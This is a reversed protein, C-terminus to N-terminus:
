MGEKSLYSPCDPWISPVVCVVNKEKRLCTRIREPTKKSSRRDNSDNFSMEFDEARFHKACVGSNNSPVFNRPIASIWKSRIPEQEPFKFVSIKQTHTKYGVKCNPVCCHRGMRKIKVNLAWINLSSSSSRSSLSPPPLSFDLSHRYWNKFCCSHM